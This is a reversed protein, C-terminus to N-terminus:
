EIIQFLPLLILSFIVAILLPLITVIKGLNILMLKWFKPRIDNDPALRNPM